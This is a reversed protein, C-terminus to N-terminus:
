LSDDSDAYDPGQSTLDDSSNAGQALALEATDSYDAEDCRVAKTLSSACDGFSTAPIGCRVCVASRAYKRARAHHADAARKNRNQIHADARRLHCLAKRAYFDCRERQSPRLAREVLRAKEIRPRKRSTRSARATAEDLIRLLDALPWHPATSLDM